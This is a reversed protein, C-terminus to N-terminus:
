LYDNPEVLKFGPSQQICQRLLLEHGAGFLVVIHDGPKSRQVLHACIRFNRGNWATLLAAGPQDNGSGVRLMLPYFINDGVLKAPDNLRRLMATIGKERLLRSQAQVMAETQDNAYKLIAEQGHAKAYAEVPEYPFDGDSDIGQVARIGAIKALRFGIQVVENHSPKLTGNLYDAYRKQVLEDPWEVDVLTPHFRALREAIAQLEAQYKPLLVDPAKADHMDRGPNAMHFTGIIMVQVPTNAAIKDKAQAPLVLGVAMAFAMAAIMMGYRM